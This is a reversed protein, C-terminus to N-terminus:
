LANDCPILQRKSTAAASRVESESFPMEPNWWCVGQKWWCKWERLQPVVQIKRSSKHVSFADKLM